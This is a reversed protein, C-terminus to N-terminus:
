FCCVFSTGKLRAANGPVWSLNQQGSKEQGGTVHQPGETSGQGVATGSLPLPKGRPLQPSIAFESVEEKTVETRQGAGEGNGEEEPLFSINNNCRLINAKQM